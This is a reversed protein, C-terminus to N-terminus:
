SNFTYKLKIKVPFEHNNWTTAIGAEITEISDKMGEKLIVTAKSGDSINLQKAFLGVSSTQNFLSSKPLTKM